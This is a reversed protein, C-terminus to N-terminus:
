CASRSSFDAQIKPFADSYTEEDSEALALGEQWMQEELEPTYPIGKGEALSKEAEMILDHLKSRGTDAERMRRVADEIVDTKSKYYGAAVKSEIYKEDVPAFHINM